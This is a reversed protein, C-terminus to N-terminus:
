EYKIGNALEELKKLNKILILGDKKEIVDSEILENIVRNLHRYSTGLLESTEVLNSTKIEEIFSDDMSTLMSLLYSAFRTEVKTLLNLSSASTSSSLRYALHYINYFLQITITTNM